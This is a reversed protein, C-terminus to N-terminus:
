CKHLPIETLLRDNFSMFMLLQASIKKGRQMGKIKSFSKKVPILSIIKNCHLFKINEGILLLNSLIPLLFM